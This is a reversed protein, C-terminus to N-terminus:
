IFRICVYLDKVSAHLTYVVYLINLLVRGLSSFVEARASRDTLPHIVLCM